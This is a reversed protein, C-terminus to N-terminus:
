CPSPPWCSRPAPPGCRWAPASAPRGRGGHAERLTAEEQQARRNRSALRRRDAQGHLEALHAAAFAVGLQYQDM